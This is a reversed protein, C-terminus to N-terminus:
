YNGYKRITIRLFDIDNEYSIQIKFFFRNLLPDLPRTPLTPTGLFMFDIRGGKAAM